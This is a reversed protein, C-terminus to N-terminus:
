KRKPYHRAHVRQHFHVIAPAVDRKLKSSGSCINLTLNSDQDCVLTDPDDPSNYAATCVSEGAPCVVDVCTPFSADNTMSPTISMGEASFPYGNINSLDYNIKGDAWTYEFQSIPGTDSDVTALKISVGVGEESYEASYGSAPLLQMATNSTTVAAYYVDFGCDNYVYATGVALVSPALALLVAAGTMKMM